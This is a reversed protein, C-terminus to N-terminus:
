FNKIYLNLAINKSFLFFDDFFMYKSIISTLLLFFYNNIMYILNIEMIVPKDMKKVIEVLKPINLGSNCALIIEEIGSLKEINSICASIAVLDADTINNGKLNLFQM